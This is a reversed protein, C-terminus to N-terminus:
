RPESSRAYFDRLARVLVGHMYTKGSGPTGSFMVGNPLTTINNNSNNNSNSDVGVIYDHIIKMSRVAHTPYTDCLDAFSSTSFDPSSHLSEIRAISDTEDKTPDLKNLMYHMFVLPASVIVLQQLFTALNSSNSRKISFRAGIRSMERVLFPLLSPDYHYRHNSSSQITMSAPEIVYSSASALGSLLSSLDGDVIRPLPTSRLRRSRRQRLVFAIAFFIALASYRSSGRRPSRM